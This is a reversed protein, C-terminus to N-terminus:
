IHILSLHQIITNLNKMFTTTDNQAKLTNIFGSLLIITLLIIYNRM